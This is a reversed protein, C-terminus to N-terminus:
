IGAKDKLILLVDMGSSLYLFHFFGLIGTKVKEGTTRGGTIKEMQAM